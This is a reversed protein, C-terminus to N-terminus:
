WILGLESINQATEQDTEGNNLVLASPRFPDDEDQQQAQEEEGELKFHLSKCTTINICLKGHGHSIM